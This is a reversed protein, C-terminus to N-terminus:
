EEIRVAYFGTEHQLIKSSGTIAKGDGTFMWGTFVQEFRPFRIAFNINYPPLGVKGKVEYKSGDRDSYYFGEVGGEDDVKLKLVGSRQGDDHLKFSGNFYRAEFKNGLVFKGEKKPLAEKIPETLLYLKAKGVPEVFVEKGEVVFRVDATMQEPVVQGLDLSLRFGPFLSMKQGSATITREEGEKYTVYREIYLMPLLTDGGVKQRAPYALLKAFRGDNTRVVLFAASNKPVIRNNDSLQEGSVRKLEKVSKLGPLRTLIPNVYHDFDQASAPAACGVLALLVFLRRSM